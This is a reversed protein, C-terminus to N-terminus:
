GLWAIGGEPNSLSFFCVAKFFLRSVMVLVDIATM